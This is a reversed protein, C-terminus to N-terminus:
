APLQDERRRARGPSVGMFRKFARGFAAESSYDLRAAVEALTVDSENLWSHAVQMRWRTVYRMASEGVLESFRAAFASRSMSCAQALAPVTWHHEPDRHISLLAKGIQEDRMAGLWGTQTEIDKNLWSRVAQIVLVDCLRTIITEGGMRLQKAEDTILRITSQLWHSEADSWADVLLIRPLLNIVQFAVPHDFRVAGCLITTRAGGGGHNLLEYRESILQRPLDFLPLCPEALESLLTHGRGHPILVLDGTKLCQPEAGELELWCRGSMVIHFMLTGSMAPLDIGFPATLDSRCYFAGSMRLHHLSEGVPDVVPPITNTKMDNATHRM